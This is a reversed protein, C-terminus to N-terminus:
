QQNEIQQQNQKERKKRQNEERRARIEAMGERAGKIIRDDIGDIKYKVEGNSTEKVEGAYVATSTLMISILLGIVKKM